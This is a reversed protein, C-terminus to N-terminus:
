LMAALPERDKMRDIESIPNGDRDKVYNASDSTPKGDKDVFSPAGDVVGVVDGKSGTSAGGPDGKATAAMSNGCGALLLLALPLAVIILLVRSYTSGAIAGNRLM